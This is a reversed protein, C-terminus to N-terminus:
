SADSCRKDWTEFDNGAFTRLGAIESGWVSNIQWTLGLNSWSTALLKQGGWFEAEYGISGPFHDGRDHTESFVQVETPYWGQDPLSTIWAVTDYKFEYANNAILHTVEYLHSLSPNVWKMQEVYGYTPDTWAAFVYYTTWGARRVWGSQAM